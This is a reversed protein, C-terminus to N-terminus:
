QLGDREEQQQQKRQHGHQQQQKRQHGHQQRKKTFQLPRANQIDVNGFLRAAAALVAVVAVAAAAVTAPIAAAAADSANNQQRQTCTRIRCKRINACPSLGIQIISVASIVVPKM